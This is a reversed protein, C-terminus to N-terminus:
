GEYFAVSAPTRKLVRTLQYQAAKVSTIQVEYGADVFAYPTALEEFWVGTQEGTSGMAAHSTVIFLILTNM